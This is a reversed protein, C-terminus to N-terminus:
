AEVGEFRKAVLEHGATTVRQCHLRPVRRDVGFRETLARAPREDSGM